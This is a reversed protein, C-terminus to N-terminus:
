EDQNSNKDQYYAFARYCSQVAEPDIQQLKIMQDHIRCREMHGKYWDGPETSDQYDWKHSQILGIIQEKLMQAFDPM